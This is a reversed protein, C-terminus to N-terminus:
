RCVFGGAVGASVGGSDVGSEGLERTTFVCHDFLGDGGDGGAVCVGGVLDAVKGDGASGYGHLLGVGADAARDVGGDGGARYDESLLFLEWEVWDAGCWLLAM